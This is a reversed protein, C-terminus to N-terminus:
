KIINKLVFKHLRPNAALIERKSIDYPNGKLDTVKAGAEKCIISPAAYDWPYAGIHIAVDLRGCALYALSSVSGYRRIWSTYKSFRAYYRGVKKFRKRSWVWGLKVVAGRLSKERSVRIKKNNLYAGKGKEAYFLEDHIPDYIVGLIIKEKKTLAILVSFFPIDSAFNRTGDLPDIIWKYESEGIKKEGMEESLISHTPYKKRIANIIYKEAALDANTVINGKAGKQKVKLAKHFYKLLIEGAEKATKIAFHKM